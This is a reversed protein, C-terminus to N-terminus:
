RAGPRGPGSVLRHLAAWQGATLSGPLATPRIGQDRLWSRLATRPPRRAARAVIEEVGRGPGTFIRRVFEQYEAREDPELLPVPRRTLTFLGGDVGPRPRFAAAPVREVLRFTFWPWWQATMMTAGGVGARRRAVEWQTLLVADTWGPARLLRRLVATTLHFPLNGVVVHPARPLAYRLFDAHVVTTSPGTRRRLRAARRGDIEIGTLPRGLEELPLTLAGDGTGIEVVPGQTAAVLGVIRGITDPDVLFNQGTEHRGGPQPPPPGASAPGPREDRPGRSPQPRSTRHTRRPNDRRGPSRGSRRGQGSQGQRDPRHRQEQRGSQGQRDQQGPQESREPQGRQQREQREPRGQRGPREQREPQGQQKQREQSGRLEPREPQDQREPRTRREPRGRRGRRDPLRDDPSYRNDDSYRNNHNHKDHHSHRPM